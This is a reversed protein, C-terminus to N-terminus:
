WGWNVRLVHTWDSARRNIGRQLEYDLEVSKTVHLRGGVGITSTTKSLGDSTAVVTAEAYVAFGGVVQQEIYGTTHWYWRM